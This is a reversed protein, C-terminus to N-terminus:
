VKVDRDNPVEVGCDIGFLLSAPYVERGGVQKWGWKIKRREKHYFVFLYVSPQFSALFSAM